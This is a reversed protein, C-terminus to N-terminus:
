YPLIKWMGYESTFSFSNILFFNFDSNFLEHLTLVYNIGTICLM